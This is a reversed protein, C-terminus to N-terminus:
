FGSGPERLFADEEPTSVRGLAANRHPFRGFRDIVDKHRHAYSEFEADGLTSILALSRRQDGADESHEFPLYLFVRREPALGQDLGNAIAREAIDRALGDTAFAQADDRFLNRPFQDLVIVTALARKASALADEPPWKTLVEYLREFRQRIKADVGPDKAFWKERGLEEFWFGLVEGIWAEGADAADTM